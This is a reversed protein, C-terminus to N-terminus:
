PNAEAQNPATVILWYDEEEIASRIEDSTAGKQVVDQPQLVDIWLAIMKPNDIYVPDLGTYQSYIGSPHSRAIQMAIEQSGASHGPLFQERKITSLYPDNLGYTDICDGGAYFPVKGAMATVFVGYFPRNKAMEKGLIVLSDNGGKTQYVYRDSEFFTTAAIGIVVVALLVAQAHWRMRSWLPASVASCLIILGVLHRDLLYDGGIYIYYFIWSIIVFAMGLAVRRSGVLLGPLAILLFVVIPAVTTGLVLYKLGVPIRDFVSFNVKANATNPLLKGYTVLRWALLIGMGIGLGILIQKWAGQGVILTGVLVMFIYIFGDSRLLVLFITLAVVAYTKYSYDKKAIIALYALTALGIAFVGSELGSTTHLWIAPSLAALILGALAKIDGENEQIVMKALILLIGSALLVSTGVMLPHVWDKRGLLSYVASIYVWLPNSFGETRRYGSENWSLSGNQALNWGYRYSIYADDAGSVSFSRPGQGYSGRYYHLTSGAILLLVPVFLIIKSNFYKTSISKRSKSSV